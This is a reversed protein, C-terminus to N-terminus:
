RYTEEMKANHYVALTEYTSQHYQHEITSGDPQTVFGTLPKLDAKGLQDLIAKQTPGSVVITLTMKSEGKRPVDRADGCTVVRARDSLLIIGGSAVVSAVFSASCRM